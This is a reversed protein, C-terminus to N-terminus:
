FYKDPWSFIYDKENDRLKKQCISIMRKRLYNLKSIGILEELM